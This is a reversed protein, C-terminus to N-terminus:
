QLEVFGHLDLPTLSGDSPDAWLLRHNNTDAVLLREGVECIGAPEYLVAPDGNGFATRTERSRLDIAKIKNNYTDCVYLTEDIAAVDMCHQFLVKEGEGDV